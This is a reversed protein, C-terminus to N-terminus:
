NLFTEDIFNISCYFFNKGLEMSWIQPCVLLRDFFIVCIFKGCSKSSFLSVGITPTSGLNVPQSLRLIAIDNQLNASNFSPHVTIKIVSVTQFPFVESSGDWKGLQVILQM